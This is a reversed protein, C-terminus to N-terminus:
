AFSRLRHAMIRRCCHHPHIHAVLRTHPSAQAVPSVPLASSPDSGAVFPLQEGPAAAPVPPAVELLSVLPLVLPVVLLPVPPAVDAMDAVALPVPPLQLSLGQM